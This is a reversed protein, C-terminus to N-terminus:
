HIKIIPLGFDTSTLSLHRMTYHDGIQLKWFKPAVGFPSYRLIKKKKSKM